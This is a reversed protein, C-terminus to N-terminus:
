NMAALITRALAGLRQEILAPTECVFAVAKRREEFVRMDWQLTDGLERLKAPEAGSDQADRLKQAEGRVREAIDKQARGYRDLGAVVERRESDLKDFIGAFLLTLREKRAAGSERSFREVLKAADDMSTRRASLRSVLEVLANDDRWVKTAEDISPGSWITALSLHAVKVQRCPWDAQERAGQQAAAAGLGLFIIILAALNTARMM